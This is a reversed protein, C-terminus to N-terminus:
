IRLIAFILGSTWYCVSRRLTCMRPAAQVFCIYAGGHNDRRRARRRELRHHFGMTFDLAAVAKEVCSVGSPSFPSICIFPRTYEIVFTKHMAARRRAPLSNLEEKQLRTRPTDNKYKKEALLGVKRKYRRPGKVHRNECHRTSDTNGTTWLAGGKKANMRQPSIIEGTGTGSNFHYTTSTRAHKLHFFAYSKRFYM